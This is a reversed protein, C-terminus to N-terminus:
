RGALPRLVIDTARVSSTTAGFAPVPQAGPWTHGGGRIEYLRLDTGPCSWTRVVVDAFERRVSPTRACGGTVAWRALRDLVPQAETEEFPPPRDGGGGGFPVIPDATGHVEVMRSPLRPCTPDISPAVAVVAAALGPSACAIVDAMDAGDSFGTLVVPVAPACTARRVATVLRTVFAVDDPGVAPRRVFNWRGGLGDPTVVVAGVKAGAAGLGTYADQQRASQRYGHFDVVLSRVPGAPVQLLYSRVPRVSADTRRSLGAPLPACTSTPAASPGRSPVAAVSPRAAGAPGVGAARGLRGPLQSGAFCAGVALALVAVAVLPRRAAGPFV